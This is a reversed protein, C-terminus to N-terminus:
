PALLKRQALLKYGLALIACDLADHPKPAPPCSAELLASLSAEIQRGFSDYFNEISEKELSRKILTKIESLNLVNKLATIILLLALHDRTYKKKVPPPLLQHKVYNNVMSPTLKKEQACEFFPEAYREILSLVQEMYLELDPFQAWTPLPTNHDPSM